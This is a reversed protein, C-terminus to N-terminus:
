TENNVKSYSEIRAQVELIMDEANDGAGLLTSCENITTEYRM